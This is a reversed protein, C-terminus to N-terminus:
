VTSALIQAVSEASDLLPFHGSSVKHFSLGLNKGILSQAYASYKKDREGFIYHMKKWPLQTTEVFYQQVGLSCGELTQALVSRSYNEQTRQPKLETGEFVSQNNWERLIKEWSPEQLFKKSWEQDAALRQSKEEDNSLGFHSSILVMSSLSELTQPSLHLLVRGGLSYGVVVASPFKVYKQVRHALAPLSIKELSQAEEWLNVVQCQVEKKRQLEKVILSWDTPLGLFGHVFIFHPRKNGSSDM